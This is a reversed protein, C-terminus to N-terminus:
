RLRGQRGVTTLLAVKLVDVWNWSTEDDSLSLKLFSVIKLKAKPEYDMGAWRRLLKDKRPSQWNASLHMGDDHASPAPATSPLGSFAIFGGLM